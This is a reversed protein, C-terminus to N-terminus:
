PCRDSPRVSVELLMTAKCSLTRIVFSWCSLAFCINSSFLLATYTERGGSGTVATLMPTWSTNISGCGHGTCFESVAQSVLCDHAVTVQNFESLELNELRGLDRPNLVCVVGVQHPLM